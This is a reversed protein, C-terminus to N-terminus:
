ANFPVKMSKFVDFVIYPKRGITILLQGCSEVEIIIIIWKAGKNQNTKVIQTHGNQAIAFGNERAWYM